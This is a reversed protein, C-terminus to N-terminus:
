ANAHPHSLAICVMPSLLTSAGANMRAIVDVDQGGWGWGVSGGVWWVQILRPAQLLVTQQDATIDPNLHSRSFHAQLVCM